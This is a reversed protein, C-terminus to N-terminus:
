ASALTEADDVIDLREDLRTIKLVRQVRDDGRVLVFRWGQERARSDAALLSRLGSSDMFALPQLDLVILSPKAAEVRRLEDDLKPATALDLEGKLEVQVGGDSRESTTIDLTTM